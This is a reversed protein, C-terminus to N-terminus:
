FPRSRLSAVTMASSKSVQVPNAVPLNLGMESLHILYLSGGMPRIYSNYLVGKILKFFVFSGDAAKAYSGAPITTTFGGIDLTVPEVDPHIGNSADGWPFYFLSRFSGNIPHPEVCSASVRSISPASPCSGAIAPLIRRWRSRKPGIITAAVMNNVTNFALIKGADPFPGSLPIYVQKSDPTVAANGSSAQVGLGGVLKNTAADFVSVFGEAGLNIDPYMGTIYGFKGDPTVTLKTPGRGFCCVAGAAMDTALDIM